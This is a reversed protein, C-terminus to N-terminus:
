LILDELNIMPKRSFVYRLFEGFSPHNMYISHPQLEDVTHNSHLQYDVPFELNFDTENITSHKVHKAALNKLSIIGKSTLKAILCESSSSDNPLKVSLEKEYKSHAIPELRGAVVDNQHYINYIRFSKSAERFQDRATEGRKGLFYWLPSGVVFLNHVRDFGIIKLDEKMDEMTLIDYFIVSGLSHGILSIRGKFDPNHKIFTAFHTKIQNIVISRIKKGYVRCNYLKVDELISNIKGDYQGIHCEDGCVHGDELNTRWHIPIFHTNSSDIKGDTVNILKKVTNVIWDEKDKHGVGHMLFALNEMEGTPGTWKAPMSYTRVIRPHSGERSIRFESVSSFEVTASGLRLPEPVQRGPYHDLHRNIADAEAAEIPQRDSVFYYGRIIPISDNKWYIPHIFRNKKSVRYYGGGVLVPLKTPDTVEGDSSGSSDSRLVLNETGTVLPMDLHKYHKNYLAESKEDVEIGNKRRYKIEILLSDRDSFPTLGERFWRIESCKLQDVRMPIQKGERIEPYLAEEPKRVVNKVTGEDNADEVTARQMYLDKLDAKEADLVVPEDVIFEAHVDVEYDIWVPDISNNDHSEVDNPNEIKWSSVRPRFAQENNGNNGKVTTVPIDPKEKSIKMNRLEPTPPETM